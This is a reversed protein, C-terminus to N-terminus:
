AVWGAKSEVVDGCQGCRWRTPTPVKVYRHGHAACHRETQVREDMAALEMARLRDAKVMRAVTLLILGFVFLFAIIFAFGPTVWDSVLGPAAPSM